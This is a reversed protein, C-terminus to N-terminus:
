TLVFELQRNYADVDYIGISEQILGQSNITWETGKM